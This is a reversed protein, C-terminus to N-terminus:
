VPGVAGAQRSQLDLRGTGGERLATCGEVAQLVPDRDDASIDSFCVADKCSSRKIKDGAIGGVPGRSASLDSSGSFRCARCVFFLGPCSFHRSGGARFVLNGSRIGSGTGCSSIGARLGRIQASKVGAGDGAMLKEAGKVIDNTCRGDQQAGAAVEVQDVPGQAQGLDGCLEAQGAQLGLAHAEDVRM